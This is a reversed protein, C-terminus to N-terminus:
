ELVRRVVIVGELDVRVRSYVRLMEIVELEDSSHNAQSYKMSTEEISEEDPSEVLHNQSLFDGQRIHLAHIGVEM